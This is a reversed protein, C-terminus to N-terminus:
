TQVTKVRDRSIYILGTGLKKSENILTDVSEDPLGSTRLDVGMFIVQLKTGQKTKEALDRWGCLKHIDALYDKMVANSGKKGNSGWM